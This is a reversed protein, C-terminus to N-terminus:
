SGELSPLLPAIEDAPMPKGVLFGQIQDCRLLHLLSAQAETEVGEAVIKFNLGHGLTLITQVITTKDAEETVTEIFSRDIKLASM